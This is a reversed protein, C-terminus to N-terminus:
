FQAAHSVLITVSINDNFLYIGKRCFAFLQRMPNERMALDGSMGVSDLFRVIGIKIGSWVAKKQVNPSYRHRHHM